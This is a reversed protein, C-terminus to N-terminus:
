KVRSERSADVITWIGLAILTVGVVLLLAVPAFDVPEGMMGVVMAYPLVTFIPFLGGFVLAMGVGAVKKAAMIM